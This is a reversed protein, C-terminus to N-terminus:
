AKPINRLLKIDEEYNKVNSRLIIVKNDNIFKNFIHKGSIRSDKDKIQKGYYSLCSNIAEFCYEKNKNHISFPWLLLGVLDYALNFKGKKYRDEIWERGTIGPLRILTLERKSKYLKNINFIDAYGKIGTTEYDLDDIRLSAHSYSSGTVLATIISFISSYDIDYLVIILDNNKM